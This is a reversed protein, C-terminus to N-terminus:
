QQKNKLRDIAIMVVKITEHFLEAPEDLLLAKSNIRLM